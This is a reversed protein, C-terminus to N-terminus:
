AIQGACISLDPRRKIHTRDAPFTHAPRLDRSLRDAAFTHVSDTIWLTKCLNMCLTPSFHADGGDLTRSPAITPLLHAGRPTDYPSTMRYPGTGARGASSTCLLSRKLLRPRSGTLRTPTLERTSTSIFQQHGGFAACMMPALRLQRRPNCYDALFACESRTQGAASSSRRDSRVRDAVYGATAIGAILPPTPKNHTGNGGGDTDALCDCPQANCASRRQSCPDNCTLTALFTATPTNHTPYRTRCIIGYQHNAAPRCTIRM